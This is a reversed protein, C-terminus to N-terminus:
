IVQLLPRWRPRILRTPDRGVLTSPSTPARLMLQTVTRPPSPRPPSPVVLLLRDRVLSVAPSGASFERTQKVLLTLLPPRSEARRRVDNSWSWPAAVLVILGAKIVLM